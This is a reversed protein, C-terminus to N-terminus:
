FDIALAGRRRLFAVDLAGALVALGGRDVEQVERQRRRLDGGELGRSGADQEAAVVRFVGVHGHDRVLAARFQGLIERLARRGERSFTDACSVSSPDSRFGRMRGKPGGEGALPSPHILWCGKPPASIISTWKQGVPLPLFTIM